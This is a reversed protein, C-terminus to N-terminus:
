FPARYPPRDPDDSPCFPLPQVFPSVFSSFDETRIM